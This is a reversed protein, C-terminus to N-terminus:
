ESHDELKQNNKSGQKISPDTQLLLWFQCSIIILRM